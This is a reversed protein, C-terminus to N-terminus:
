WGGGPEAWADAAARRPDNYPLADDVLLTESEVRALGPPDTPTVVVTIQV